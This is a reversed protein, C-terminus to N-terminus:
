SHGTNECQSLSYSYIVGFGLGGSLTTGVLSGNETQIPRSFPVLGDSGTFSHLTTLTGGPTIQFITGTLNWPNSPDSTGGGETVGYLNGDSGSIMGSFPGAGDPGSFFHMSDLVGDPHIRFITGPTAYPNSPDFGSGGVPTVGYIAGDSGRVLPSYPFWGDTGVFSHLSQFSGDNSVRFITGATLWPTNPAFSVGGSPTTGYIYGDGGDILSAFPYAGDDGTFSHLSTFVGGPTVRFITGSSVNSPDFGAGGNTTTGYFNGDSGRVLGGAPSLGDTGTFSHLTTFTGNAAIRFITGGSGWPNDPDFSSGGHYTVGYLTGDDTAIMNAFPYWGDPGTFRHIISFAGNAAIRFIVGRGTIGPNAPDFGSGGFSTVGYLNGGRGRVLTTDPYWGDPGTFSHLSHFTGGPTIEFVTGGSLFWPGM